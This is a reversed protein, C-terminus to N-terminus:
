RISIVTETLTKTLALNGDNDLDEDVDLRGDGDTDENVETTFTVDGSNAASTITPGAANAFTLPFITMLSFM